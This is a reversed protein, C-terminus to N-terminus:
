AVDVHMLLLEGQMSPHLDCKFRYDGPRDVQFRLRVTKGPDLYLGEIGNGYVLVGESEARVLLDHFLESQFGHREGDQNKITLLLPRGM